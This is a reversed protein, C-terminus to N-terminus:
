SMSSLTRQMNAMNNMMMMLVMNQITACMASCIGKWEDIVGDAQATIQAPTLPPTKNVLAQIRDEYAKRESTMDGPDMFDSFTYTDGDYTASNTSRLKAIAADAAAQRAALDADAAAATAATAPGAGFLSRFSAVIKDAETKIQTPSLPPQRDLLARIQSDFPARKENMQALTTGTRLPQILKGTSDPFANYRLQALATDMARLRAIKEASTMGVPASATTTATTAVRAAVPFGARFGNILANARSTIEASSLPPSQTGLARIQEAVGSRAAQLDGLEYQSLLSVTKGSADTYSNRQLQTIASDVARMSAIRESSTQTSTTPLTSTITSM